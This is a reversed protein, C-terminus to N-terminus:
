PHQRDWKKKARFYDDHYAPYLDSDPEIEMITELLDLPFEDVKPRGNYYSCMAIQREEDVVAICGSQAYPIIWIMGKGGEFKKATEINM